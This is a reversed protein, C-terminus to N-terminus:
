NLLYNSPKKKISEIERYVDSLLIATLVITAFTCVVGIWAYSSSQFVNVLVLVNSIILFILWITASHYIEYSSQVLKLLDNNALKTILSPTVHTSHLFIARVLVISFCAAVVIYMVLDSYSSITQIDASPVVFRLSYVASFYDRLSYPIGFAWLAILVGVLKGLIMVCAPFISNDLLKLLSKSM